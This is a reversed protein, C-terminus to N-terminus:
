FFSWAKIIFCNLLKKVPLWPQKNLCMEAHISHRVIRQYDVVNGHEETKLAIVFCKVFAGSLFFSKNQNIIESIKIWSWSTANSKPRPLASADRHFVLTSSFQGGGTLRFVSFSVFYWLCFPGPVLYLKLSM